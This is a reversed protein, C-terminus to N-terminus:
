KGDSLCPLICQAGGLSERKRQCSIEPLICQSHSAGKTKTTKKWYKVRARSHRVENRQKQRQGHRVASMQPSLIENVPVLARWLIAAGLPLECTWLPHACVWSVSFNCLGAFFVHCFVFVLCFFFLFSGPFAGGSTLFFQNPPPAQAAKRLGGMPPCRDLLLRSVQDCKFGTKSVVAWCLPTSRCSHLTLDSMMAHRHRLRSWFLMETTRLVCWIKKKQFLKKEGIQAIPGLLQWSCLPLCISPTQILRNGFTQSNSIWPVASCCSLYFDSEWANQIRYPLHNQFLKGFIFSLYM